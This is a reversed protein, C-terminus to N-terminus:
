GVEAEIEVQTMASKQAWYGGGIWRHKNIYREWFSFHLGHKDAEAVAATCCAVFVLEDAGTETWVRGITFQLM